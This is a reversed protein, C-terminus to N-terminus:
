QSPGGTSSGNTGSAPIRKLIEEVTTTTFNYRMGLGVYLYKNASVVHNVYSHVELRPTILYSIEAGYLPSLDYNKFDYAVGGHAAVSLDPGIKDNFGLYFSELHRSGPLFKDTGDQNKAYDFYQEYDFEHNLSFAAEEGLLRKQLDLKPLVYETRLHLAYSRTLDSEYGLNYSTYSGKGTLTLGECPKLVRVLEMFTRSGKEAVAQSQDWYPARWAGKLTTGGWYDLLTYAGGAGPIGEQDYYSARVTDGNILDAQLFVESKSRTGHFDGTTGDKNPIDNLRAIDLTYNAGLRLYNTLRMEADEIFLTEFSDHSSFRMAAESKLISGHAMQLEQEQRTLSSDFANSPM